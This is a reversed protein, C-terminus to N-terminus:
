RRSAKGRAISEAALLGQVGAKALGGLYSTAPGGELGGTTSGAAYLGEIIAGDTGIVRSEGDILIGGMTYTIGACVPIAYFPPVAITMAAHRALSRPPALEDLKGSAIARNYATVTAVLAAAPLGSAEALHELTDARHVTGGAEPLTPNAPIRASRGPGEWVAADFVITAGFPDDVRALVNTLAVGGVGEDAFRRANTDVLIGATALADLEPYPWVRHNHFADRSLLHGYFRDLGTTAAGAAEAMAIGDGTGTAAGRQKILEPRRTIHRALRPLDAQFGGDAIVVAQASFIRLSGDVDAEVGTCCGNSMVLNRARAGLVLQGGNAGISRALRELLQDPGRGEWDLGARMARMPALIFQQWAVRTGTYVAGGDRMWEVLRGANAAFADAQPSSAAGETARDIVARLREPPLSIDNYGVHYVGGSWRANAPYRRDVGRELVTVSLGLEAARAAATLGAMGGGIVVVDCVPTSM